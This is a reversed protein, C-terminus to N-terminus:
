FYNIEMEQGMKQTKKNKFQRDSANRSEKKRKRNIQYLNSPKREQIEILGQRRLNYFTDTIKKKPYKNWKKYARLFNTVFYPSTAAILVVGTILLGSLVDKVIESKPKKLYYKYKRISM